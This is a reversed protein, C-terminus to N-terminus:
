TSHMKMSCLTVHPTKDNDAIRTTTAFHYPHRIHSWCTTFGAIASDHLVGPLDIVCM